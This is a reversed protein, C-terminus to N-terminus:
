DISRKFEDKKYGQLYLLGTLDGHRIAADAAQELVPKARFAVGCGALSIMGLDNAGDGVAMTDAVDLGFEAMLGELTHRKSERDFIPDAVTGTLHDGETELVNAVDRHFGVLAGIQGTFYRFGGSALCTFAGNARMTRVLAEAGPMLSMQEATEALLRTPQGKLLAVRERLAMAFDLEGAMARTTIAKVQEGFGAHAALEDLTENQLITSDMDAILLKKRRHATPLANVDVPQGALATVVAARIAARDAHDFLIEAAEGAALITEAGLSAGAASMAQRATALMSDDLASQGAPTILVLVHQM